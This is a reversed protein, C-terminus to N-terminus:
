TGGGESPSEIMITVPGENVLEVSMMAGFVGTGVRIGLARLREVFLDFLVSAKEPDGANVFSPRRGRSCDAHLTFQSVALIDGGADLLSINMDGANDPFIRLNILKSAMWAIDRETDEGGIGVLALIGAGISGKM